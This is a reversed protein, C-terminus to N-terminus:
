NDKANIIPMAKTDSHQMDSPTSHLEKISIVSQDIVQLWPSTHFGIGILLSCIVAAIIRENGPSPLTSANPSYKFPGQFRVPTAIFIQQFARLLLAAAMVNGILIAISVLWGHGKITGEILLHIGDFGPTGPMAMTSLACIVFLVAVASNADFMGGLRPIMATHTRKYIMGIGLLMGATALGFAISLLISGELGFTNFDFIGIVLMGTQSIVAFALLRRINIQMLALLAGYFIGCLGFILVLWAWQEAVEPLLPMIFRIVAYVGLKLGVLFIGVSAITGQEALVPLWGHFPFLPMRIAFGFFLLFFILTAYELSADSQKLAPWDFTLIDGTGMVGFGLMLFGVLVMFLGSGWHQLLLAVVWRRNQGSGARITMIVVPILELLCVFWFQLANMASFAAILIAGYGLICAIQIQDSSRRSTLTYILALLMLIATLPIFLISAGDVGVTYTFSINQLQEYLQIGPRDADFVLLLYISLLITLITGIFGIRLAVIPSPSLLVIVMAVLPVLMMTTLLPFAATESWLTINVIDM